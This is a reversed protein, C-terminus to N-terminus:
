TKEVHTGAIKDHWAQQEPDWLIWFYGLMCVVVSLFRGITERLLARGIGPPGGDPGVVRVGLMMKGLTQGTIGTLGAMYAVQVGLAVGMAGGAASLAQEPTTAAKAAGGMAAGIAYGVGNMLLNDVFMAAWRRMASEGNSIGSDFAGSHAAYGMVPASPGTPGAMMPPPAVPKPPPPLPQSCYECVMGMKSHKFCYQCQV